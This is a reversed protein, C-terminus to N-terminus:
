RGRGGRSGEGRGRGGGGRGGRGSEPIGGSGASGEGRGRGGRGRGGRGARPPRNSGAGDSGRRGRKGRDGKKSRGGSPNIEIPPVDANSRDVKASPSAPVTPPAKDLDPPTHVSVSPGTANPAQSRKVRVSPLLATDVLWAPHIVWDGNIKMARGNGQHVAKTKADDVLTKAAAKSLGTLSAVADSSAGALDSITVIGAKQLAVLKTQAAGLKTIAGATGRLRPDVLWRPDVLFYEDFMWNPDVISSSGIASLAAAQVSKGGPIGLVSTLNSRKTKALDYITYIGAAHFVDVAARAKALTWAYQEADVTDPHKPAKKPKAIKKPAVKRCNAWSWATETTMSGTGPEQGAAVEYGPPCMHLWKSTTAHARMEKPNRDIDFAISSSITGKDSTGVLPSCWAQITYNAYPSDLLAKTSPLTFSVRVTAEHWTGNPPWTRTVTVDGSTFIVKTIREDFDPCTVHIEADHIMSGSPHLSGSPMKVLAENEPKEALGVRWMEGDVVTMYITNPVRFEIKPKAWATGSLVM